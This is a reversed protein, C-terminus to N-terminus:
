SLLNIETKTETVPEIVTKPKTKYEMMTVLCLRIKLVFNFRTLNKEMNTAVSMKKVTKPAM